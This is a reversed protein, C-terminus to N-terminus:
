GGIAIDAFREVRNQYTLTQVIALRQALRRLPCALRDLLRDVGGLRGHGRQLFSELEVDGRLRVVPVPVHRVDNELDALVDTVLECRPGRVELQDDSDELLQNGRGNKEENIGRVHM